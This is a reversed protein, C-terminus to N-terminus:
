NNNILQSLRIIKDIRSKWNNKSLFEKVKLKDFKYDNKTLIQILNVFEQDNKAIHVEPIKSLEPMKTAVVPKYMSVYEFVKLPSIAKTLDLNSIFPIICVDCNQIYNPLENQKKLGLFYINKYKSFEKYWTSNYDLSGIFIFEYDYLKIILKRILNWDIWGGYLSGMYLIKKKENTVLDNPYEFTNNNNFINENYANPLYEVIKKKGIKKIHNVLVKSSATVLDAEKVVKTEIKKSYWEGGLEGEWLDICDYIIISKEFYKKIEYIKEILEKHPFELIVVPKSHKEKYRECLDEVDFSDNPFLELLTFDTNIHYPENITDASRYLNVFCVRYGNSIFNLALQTARSGGGIDHIPTGSLIIIMGKVDRYVDCLARQKRGESFGKFASLFNGHLKISNTKNFYVIEPFYSYDGVGSLGDGMGYRYFLKSIETNTQPCEWEVTSLKNIVWCKSEKRYLIDFVTDDGTKPLYEPYGGIKLFISKKVAVIRASPLFNYFNIQEWDPVVFNSVKNNPTSSYYIGGVLDIKKTFSGILNILSLPNYKCGADVIAIIENHVHKCAINRGEPISCGNTKILKISFKINKKWDEIIKVTNDTSGGDVIIMESPVLRQLEISKLFDLVTKEENRITTILSFKTKVNKYNKEIVDVEIDKLFTVYKYPNYAIKTEISEDKLKLLKLIQDRSQFYLSMLKWIRGNQIKRITEQKIELQKKLYVLEANLQLNENKLNTVFNNLNSFHEETSQDKQKNIKNM